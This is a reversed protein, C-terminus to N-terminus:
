DQKRGPIRAGMKVRSGRGLDTSVLYAKVIRVLKNARGSGRGASGKEGKVNFNYENGFVNIM